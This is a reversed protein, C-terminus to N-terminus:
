AFDSLRGPDLNPELPATEEAVIESLHKQRRALDAEVAEIWRRHSLGTPDLPRGGAVRRHQLAQDYPPVSEAGFYDPKKGHQARGGASISDPPRAEYLRHARIPETQQILRALELVFWYAPEHSSKGKAGTRDATRAATAPFKRQVTPHSWASCPGSLTVRSLAHHDDSVVLSAYPNSWLKATHAHVMNGPHYPVLVFVTKGRREVFAIKGRDGNRPSTGPLGTASVTVQFSEFQDALLQELPMMPNWADSPSPREDSTGGPRKVFLNQSCQTYTEETGGVFFRLLSGTDRAANRHAQLVSPPLGYEREIQSAELPVVGFLTIHLGMADPDMPHLALLALRDNHLAAEVTEILAGAAGRRRADVAPYRCSVPEGESLGRYYDPMAGKRNLWRQVATLEGARKPYPLFLPVVVTAADIVAIPKASGTQEVVAAFTRRHRQRGHGQAEGGSGIIVQTATMAYAGMATNLYQRYQRRYFHDAGIADAAEQRKRNGPKTSGILYQYVHEAAPGPADKRRFYREAIAERRHPAFVSLWRYIRTKWRRVLYRDDGAPTAPSHPAPRAPETGTVASSDDLSPKLSSDVRKM